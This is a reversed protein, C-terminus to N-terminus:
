GADPAGCVSHDSPLIGCFCDAGARKQDVGCGGDSGKHLLGGAVRQSFGEGFCLGGYTGGHM